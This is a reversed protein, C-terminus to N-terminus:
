RSRRRGLAALGVLMMAAVTPEPAVDIWLYPRLAENPSGVASSAFTPAVFSIADARLLLGRNALDGDLWDRVVDTLEFNFWQNVANITTTAAANGSNYTADVGPRTSWTVTAEDWAADPVFASVNLPSGAAPSDSFASTLSYLYLRAEIVDGAAIAPLNDFRILTEVDHSGGANAAGIMAGYGGSNFNTTSLFSYVFTDASASEDPQLTIAASAASVLWLTLAAAAATRHLQTFM